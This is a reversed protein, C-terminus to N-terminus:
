GLIGQKKRIKKNSFHKKNEKTRGLTKGPKRQAKLSCKSKKTNKVKNKLSKKAKKKKQAKIKELYSSTDHKPPEEVTDDKPQEEVSPSSSPDDKKILRFKKRLIDLKDVLHARTRRKANRRKSKKKTLPIVSIKSRKRMLELREKLYEVGYVPLRPKQSLDAEPQEGAPKAVDNGDTESSTAAVIDDFLQQLDVSYDSVYTNLRARISARRRALKRPSKRTSKEKVDKPDISPSKPTPVGADAALVSDLFLARLDDPYTDLVACIANSKIM